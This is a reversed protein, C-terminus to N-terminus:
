VHLERQSDIGQNLLSIVTEDSTQSFHHYWQGVGFFNDPCSLCVVHDAYGQLDRYSDFAGVPVAALVEKPAQKKVSLCAAEMTAGTALGDDVIIVTKDKLQLSPRSSRYMRIRRNLEEEEEAMVRKVQEDSIRLQRTISQDLVVVQDPGIAGMAYEEHGPVGLKRVVYVDLPVQLKQAVEFAVPVGGRALGLVIDAKQWGLNLLEDGLLQGAHKRDRFLM